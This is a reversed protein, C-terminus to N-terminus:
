QLFLLKKKLLTEQAELSTKGDFTFTVNYIGSKDVTFTANDSPYSWDWSHDRVVKYQYETDKVLVVNEKLLKYTGDDQKSM